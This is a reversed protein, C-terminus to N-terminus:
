GAQMDARRGALAQRAMAMDDFPRQRGHCEQYREHGKGAIVVVDGDAAERIARAIAAARDLITVCPAPGAASGQVIDAAIRAPDESRPNDSTVVVFDSLRGAVAGMLPRKAKDRDGGCGFVTVLRGRALRRATELLGRLADSTHAFDVIVTVADDHGSAVQMRGPVYTLSAIGRHIARLPLDLASGAAATALINYTNSRGILSSRLHM